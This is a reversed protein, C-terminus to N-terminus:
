GDSELKKELEEIENINLAALSESICKADKKFTKGLIGKNPLAEVVDVIKPEALKKEAALRTGTAKTHQTLDYASRDACGVCEIWGQFNNQNHSYM